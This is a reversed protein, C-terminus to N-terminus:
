LSGAYCTLMHFSFRCRIPNPHITGAGEKVQQQNAVTVAAGHVLHIYNHNFGLICM